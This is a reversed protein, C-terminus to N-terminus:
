QCYLCDVGAFIPENDIIGTSRNQLIHFPKWKVKLNRMIMRKLESDTAPFTKLEKLILM